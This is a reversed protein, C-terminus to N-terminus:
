NNKTKANEVWLLDDAKSGIVFQRNIVRPLGDILLIIHAQYIGPPLVTPQRLRDPMIKANNSKIDWYVICVNAGVSFTPPLMIRDRGLNNQDEDTYIRAHRIPVIIEGTDGKSIRYEITLSQVSERNVGLLRNLICNTIPPNHLFIGLQREGSDCNLAFQTNVKARGLIMQFITPVSMIISVGAFVIGIWSWSDPFKGFVGLFALLIIVLTIFGLFGFGM